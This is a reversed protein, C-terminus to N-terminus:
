EDETTEDTGDDCDDDIAEDIEGTDDDEAEAEEEESGSDDISRSGPEVVPPVPRTKGLLELLELGNRDLEDNALETDALMGLEDLPTTNNEDLSTWCLEDDLLPNPLSMGSSMFPADSPEGQTTINVIKNVAIATIRDHYNKNSDIHRHSVRLTIQYPYTVDLIM